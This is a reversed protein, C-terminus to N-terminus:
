RPVCLYFDICGSYYSCELHGGLARALKRSSHLGLGSHPGAKSSYGAEFLKDIDEQEAMYPNSVQFVTVPGKDSIAVKVFRDPPEQGEVAEMANDILNGLIRIVDFIDAGMKKLSTLINIDLAIEKANAVAQKSNLLASIFPNDVALLNNYYVAETNLKELYEAAEPQQSNQFLSNIVQLHNNFDHHQSRISTILDDVSRSIMEEASTMIKKERSRLTAYLIVLNLGSIVFWAGVLLYKETLSKVGGFTEDLCLFILFVQLVMALFLYLDKKSRKIRLLIYSWRNQTKRLGWVILLMICFPIILCPLMLLWVQEPSHKAPDVYIELLFSAAWTPIIEFIFASAALIITHLWSKRFAFKYSIIIIAWAALHKLAEYQFQFLFHASVSIILACGLAKKWEARISQGCIVLGGLTIFLIEFFMNLYQFLILKL